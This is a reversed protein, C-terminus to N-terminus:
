SQGTEQWAKYVEMAENKDVNIQKILM